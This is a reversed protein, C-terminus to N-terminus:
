KAADSVLPDPDAALARFEEPHAKAGGLSQLVRIAEVRRPASLARNASASRAEGSAGIADVAALARLAEGFAVDDSTEHLVVRAAAATGSDTGTALVRAAELAQTAGPAPDARDPTFMIRACGARSRRGYFVLERVKLTSQVPRTFHVVTKKVLDPGSPSRLIAEYAKLSVEDPMSLITRTATKAGQDAELVVGVALLDHEGGTAVPRSAAALVAFIVVLTFRVPM